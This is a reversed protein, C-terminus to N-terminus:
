EWVKIDTGASTSPLYSPLMKKIKLHLPQQRHYAVIHCDPIRQIGCLRDLVEATLYARGEGILACSSNSIENMHGLFQM